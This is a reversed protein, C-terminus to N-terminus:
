YCRSWRRDGLPCCGPFRGSWRALPDSDRLEDSFRILPDTPLKLTRCLADAARATHLSNVRLGLGHQVIRAAFDFQDYDQPWVLCPLAARLTSYTIGAGGHHVVAVFADMAVDYPVWSLVQVRPAVRTPTGGGSVDGLSVVFAHSPVRQALSTVAHVLDRKAWHLHTGLTVLVRPRDDPLLQPPGGGGPHQHRTRHVAPSGALGPRVRPLGLGFALIARDSYFVESGDPRYLSGGFVELETRFVRGALQKVSRTAARALGDRLRGAPGHPPTWGGCYAPTGRRNEIAFPTPITTVWPVGARRAVVGAVPACFDAVIADPQWRDAAAQVDVLARPLLRLNDRVQRAARVPHGAVRRRTNAIREMAEPDDAVAPVADFGLDRCLPLKGPGTVFRTEVGRSRLQRAIVLLPNLHGAYPPAVMLLRLAQGGTTAAARLVEPNRVYDLHGGSIALDVPGRWGLRSIWDASSQVVFPRLADPLRGAVPGLAIM